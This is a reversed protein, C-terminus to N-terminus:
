LTLKVQCICCRYGVGQRLRKYVIPGVKCGNKCNCQVIYRPRQKSIGLAVTDIDLCRDPPLGLKRMIRKWIHNHSMKGGYLVKAIIHAAEHLVTTKRQKPTLHPWILRSLRIEYTGYHYKTQAVVAKLRNNWHIPVERYNISFKELADKVLRRANILETFYDFM